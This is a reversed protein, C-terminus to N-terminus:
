QPGLHRRQKLEGRVQAATYTDGAAFDAGRGGRRGPAADIWPCSRKIWNPLNTVIGAVLMWASPASTAGHTGSAFFCEQRLLEM